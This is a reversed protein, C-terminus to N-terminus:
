HSEFLVNVSMSNSLSNTFAIYRKLFFEISQNEKVIVAQITWDFMVLRYRM